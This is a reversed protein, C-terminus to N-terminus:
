PTGHVAWTTTLPFCTSGACWPRPKPYDVPPQTCEYHYPEGANGYVINNIVPRGCHACVPTTWGTM